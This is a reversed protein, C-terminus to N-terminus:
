YLSNWCLGCELYKAINVIGSHIMSSFSYISHMRSLCRFGLHLSRVQIVTQMSIPNIMSQSHYIFCDDKRHGKRMLDSGSLDNFLFFILESRLLRDPRIHLLLLLFFFLSLFSVIVYLSRITFCIFLSFFAKCFSQSLNKKKKQSLPVNINIYRLRFVGCGVLYQVNSMSFSNAWHFLWETGRTRLVLLIFSLISSFRQLCASHASVNFVNSQESAFNTIRVSSCWKLQNKKWKM